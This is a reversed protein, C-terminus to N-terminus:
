ERNSAFRLLTSLASPRAIRKVRQGFNDSTDKVLGLSRHYRFPSDTAAAARLAREAFEKAELLQGREHSILACCGNWYYRMSPWQHDSQKFRTTLVEFVYDYENEINRDAVLIPMDIRANTIYNPHTLEWELASKFSAIAQDVRNLLIYAEARTCYASPVVFDEYSAFYEDILDLAIEPHKKVLQGAQITIYQSRTGRARSLKARYASEIVENWDANRYWDEKGM